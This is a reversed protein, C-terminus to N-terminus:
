EAHNNREKLEQPNTCVIVVNDETEQLQCLYGIPPEEGEVLFIANTTTFGDQFLQIPIAPDIVTKQIPTEPCALFYILLLGIGFLWIGVIIITVYQRHINRERHSM